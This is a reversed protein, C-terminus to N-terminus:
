PWQDAREDPVRTWRWGGRGLQANLWERAPREVLYYSVLAAVILPPILAWSAVGLVHYKYPIQQWLYISYSWQGLQRLPAWEFGRRLPTADVTSVAIALFLPALGILSFKCGIAALLALPASFPIPARERFWLHAAASLFIGAIAVDTRIFFYPREGGLAEPKIIGNALAALGVALMMAIASHAALGRIWALLAYAHEEVCISWLHELFAVSHTYFVAYNITFTLALFAALMGQPYPSFQSFVTSIIVYFLLAPYIRSFRRYFFPLLPTKRVFLIEAMLRGSLVFFFEVGFTAM